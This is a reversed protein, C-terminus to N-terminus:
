RISSERIILKPALIVHNFEGKEKDSHLTDILLDIVKEGAKKAPQAVSTLGPSYFSVMPFDDYGTVGIDKGVILGKEKIANMAGIAMLDNLAVIM